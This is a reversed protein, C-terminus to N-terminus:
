LYKQACCEEGIGSVSGKIWRRRQALQLYRVEALWRVQM